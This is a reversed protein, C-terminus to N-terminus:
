LITSHVLRMIPYWATPGLSDYTAHAAVSFGTITARRIGLDHMRRMCETCAARAFGRRQCDPHTGVTEIVGIGNRVDLCGYCGSIHKGEPSIVSIDLDPRYLPASRMSDYCAQPLDGSGFAKAVYDLRSEMHLFESASALTYGQTLMPELRMGALEYLRTVGYTGKYTFGARALARSLEIEAPYLETQLEGPKGPVWSGIGWAVIEDLMEPEEMRCLFFLDNVGEESIVAAAIKGETDRWIRCNRRHFNPDREPKLFYKWYELRCHEFPYHWPAGGQRSIIFSQLERYSEPTDAYAESPYSIHNRGSIGRLVGTV